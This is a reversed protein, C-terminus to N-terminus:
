FEKECFEKVSDRNVLSQLTGVVLGKDLRYLNPGIDVKFHKLLGSDLSNIHIELYKIDLSDLLSKMKDDVFYGSNIYMLGTYEPYTDNFQKITM